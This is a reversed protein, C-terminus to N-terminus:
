FLFIFSIALIAVFLFASIIYVGLSFASKNDNLTDIKETSSEIKPKINNEVRSVSLLSSTSSEAARLFESTDQKFSSYSRVESRKEINANILSIVELSSEPRENKQKALLKMIIKGMFYPLNPNIKSPDEPTFQLHKRMLDGPSSGDFPVTGTALEYLVIGLSYLDVKITPEEGIWIEPAIYCVSGVIENHHTLQSNEPRAIGFDTLKVDWDGTIMINGPKLDRHIIGVTHIANLADLIKITLDPLKNLPFEKEKLITELSNGSVLEMSYFTVGQVSAAEYVEVIRPHNIKRLLEAERIFRALLTTDSSFEHHLVKLAVEKGGLYKARALYVNGMGGTGIIKLIDYRSLLIRQISSLENDEVMKMGEIIGNEMEM